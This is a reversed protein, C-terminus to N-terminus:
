ALTPPLPNNPLQANGIGDGNSQIVSAATLSNINPASPLLGKATAFISSASIGSLGQLPTGGSPGGPGSNNNYILGSSSQEDGAQILSNTGNGSQAKPLALRNLANSDGNLIGIGINKLETGAMAGINKGKFNNFTQGAILAAGAWNADPNGSSDVKQLSSAIGTASDLLGGRGLLSATGGGGPTLPSPQKDYSLTAFGSPEAGAKVDGYNYLVTEYNVTMTNELFESTSSQSHQGHSFNTITPNVLIYETFRHNHLSYIKIFTLIRESGGADYKAPM